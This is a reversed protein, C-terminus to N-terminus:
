WPLIKNGGLCQPVTFNRVKSCVLRMTAAPALESWRRPSSWESVAPRPCRGGCPGELRCWLCCPSAASVTAGGSVSLPGNVAVKNAYITLPESIGSLPMGFLQQLPRFGALPPLCTLPKTKNLFAVFLCISVQIGFKRYCFWGGM